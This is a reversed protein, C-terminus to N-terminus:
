SSAWSSRGAKGSPREPCRPDDDADRGLARVVRNAVIFVYVRAGVDYWHYLHHTIQLPSGVALGFQPCNEAFRRDALGARHVILNRCQSMEFLCDTLTKEISGGLRVANLLTEFRGVGRKLDAGTNRAVESVLFEAREADSLTEYQVVSAKVSMFPAEMRLRTDRRLHTVVLDQVFAELGAWIAVTAYAHLWPFGESLETAALEASRRADAIRAEWPQPENDEGLLERLRPRQHVDALAEVLPVMRETQLTAQITMGVLDRLRNVHAFFTDFPTSRLPLAAEDTHETGTAHVESPKTVKTTTPDETDRPGGKKRAVM